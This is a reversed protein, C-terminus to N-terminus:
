GGGLRSQRCSTESTVGAPTEEATRPLAAARLEALICPLIEEERLSKCVKGYRFLVGKGKGAAIGVDADRAEGPGNVVCGMIAIKRLAIRLGRRKLADIEREVARVIPILAVGTRACTPCSILEPAGHRHGVAELIRIGIKVEEVPPATLSVRITDGIGEFLLCGIAVASKVTGSLLPGAETLGLHLPYNSRAAFLRYAEVTERPSSSKLSVKIKACGQEEVVACSRLASEVLADATAGGYRRRLEPELSGGNVGVRIVTGHKAASRAVAALNREGGINGPNIRVGHAGAECAAIALQYDFHIDAIVPLPSQTVIRALAVIADSDPVAIRVLDCGAGALVRVQRLTARVDCTPTNTMSQVSIPADGGIDVSGLHFKRTRHRAFVTAISVSEM